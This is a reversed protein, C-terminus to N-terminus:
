HILSVRSFPLFQKKINTCWNKVNYKNKKYIKKSRKIESNKKWINKEMKSRKGM